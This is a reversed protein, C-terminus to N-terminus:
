QALSVAENHGELVQYTQKRRYTAPSVTTINRFIKCFYSARSFGVRHAIEEINLSTSTLLLKAQQIRQFNLYASFNMQLEKKFLKSFYYQSLYVHNAVEELTLPRNLNNKIYLKAKNIEAKESLTDDLEDLEHIYGVEIKRGSTKKRQYAKSFTIFLDIIKIIRDEDQKKQSIYDVTPISPEVFSNKKVFVIFGELSNKIYLPLPILTLSGFSYMCRVDGQNILAFVETLQDKLLESEQFSLNLKDFNFTEVLPDNATDVLLGSINVATTFDALVEFFLSDFKKSITGQTLMM